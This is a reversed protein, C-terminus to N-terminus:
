QEFSSGAGPCFCRFVIPFAPFLLQRCPLPDCLSQLPYLVLQQFVLLFFVHVHIARSFICLLAAPHCSFQASRHLSGKILKHPLMRKRVPLPCVKRLHIMRFDNFPGFLDPHLLCFSVPFQEAPGSSCAPQLLEKGKVLGTIRLHCQPKAHGHHDFFAIAGSLEGSKDMLFPIKQPKEVNQFIFAVPCPM